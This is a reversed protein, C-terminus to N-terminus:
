EESLTYSIKQRPQGGVKIRWIEVEWTAPIVTTLWWVWRSLKFTKVKTESRAEKISSEV